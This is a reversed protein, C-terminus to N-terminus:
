KLPDILHQVSIFSKVRFPYIQKRGLKRKTYLLLGAMLNSAILYYSNFTYMYVFDGWWVCVCM